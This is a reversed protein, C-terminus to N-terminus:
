LPRLSIIQETCGRNKQAGAQYKGVNYWLKLRNMILMDYIKALIDMIGIGQYNGCMM